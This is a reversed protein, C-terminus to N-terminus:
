KARHRARYASPSEGARRRFLGSFTALSACGIEASIASLALDSDVLLRRAARVRAEGLEETFTTGAEALVRQLTRQSVALQKAASAISAGRLHADLHARLTGVLAPVGTAGAHIEDLLRPGDAVDVALWAFAAAAHDFVSVPYPRPIVDFAGSVVAGHMGAPRILALRRIRGKMADHHYALYREAARFAIPDASELRSADFVSSFPPVGPALELVLSKGLARADQGSPRGWLIVGWLNPSACFHAFTEGAVYRGVPSRALQELGVREM